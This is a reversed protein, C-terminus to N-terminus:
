RNETESLWFVWQTGDKESCLKSGLNKKATRITRASIGIKEGAEEIERNPVKKGDALLDYILKEAREEKNEMRRKEVGALLEDATIDYEGIWRFGQEEDLLFALSAGPPALSSKEQIVVRKEPEKKLKGVFLLSRVVATLDISGLGRYTSQTGSSKNLHGILVIACRTREAIEGLQRFVPRVENARNMDVNAGLFAQVPDLILLKAHNQRIAKELRGDTLTLLGDRDDISLVRKLDAGVSALRPVITDELGDEATQYIVNCPEMPQMNPLAKRNTCAAAIVMALFTKGEGPNGQIITMKGIPIYPFWLWEVPKPKIESMCLMAVVEEDRLVETKSIYKGDQIENKRQVMENWDKFAPLLRIVSIEEPLTELIRECAKNGADDNDLCLFIKKIQKRESLFQKIAADSVGGLALYNRKVWDKPFLCIFSLLDIAAEFIFLQEDEGRHCFGYQKESGTIDMRFSEQTGKAHAYRPHGHIDRGIFIVNGHKKEEYIDGFNIFTAILEQDLGREKTLYQIVKTNTESRMPLKFIQSPAPSASLGGKGEECILMKVAEPFTKGYFEMVFDIPYGGESRSHRFWKNGKVTLSNHSKWRYENGSKVLNEGQAQMFAVLDVANAREIQEKSYSM